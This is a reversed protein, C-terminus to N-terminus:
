SIRPKGLRSEDQLRRRSGSRASPADGRRRYGKSLFVLNPTIPVAQSVNPDRNTHGPREHEWLPKGTKVDHGSATDENVILIQEVGGLTAVTPSCYSIQRQGGEWLLTGRRKDFAALRSSAGGKRGGIPVILQKGVVLPSASRGWLVVAAEEDLPIGIGALSGEGLDTQRNRRRPLGSPGHVGLAFVMGDDITPTSRPGVGAEVREYRGSTSHAWELRGTEVNYCTTMEMDGRQEMTVAHGNVVSFASWGAGIKQRWVLEPPRATWNRALKVHDVSESRHPGLFGPFDDKTTTRLDVHCTKAMPLDAPPTELLRDPKASFRFAFIPVLEGSFREIRFLFDVLRRGGRLWHWWCGCDALRLRQSVPVLGGSDRHCHFMLSGHCHQRDRSRRYVNAGRVVAVLVGLLVLVIWVWIPPTRPRRRRAPVASPRRNRDIRRFENCRSEHWRSAPRDPVGRRGTWRNSAGPHDTRSRASRMPQVLGRRSVGRRDARGLLASSLQGQHPLRLRGARGAGTRRAAAEFIGLRRAIKGQDRVQSDVPRLLPLYAASAAPNRPSGGGSAAKTLMNRM